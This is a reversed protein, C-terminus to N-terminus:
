RSAARGNAKRITLANSMGSLAMVGGGVGLRVFQEDGGVFLTLALMLGCAFAFNASGVMWWELRSFAPGNARLRYRPQDTMSRADCPTRWVIGGAVRVAAMVPREHSAPSPRGTDDLSRHTASCQNHAARMSTAQSVADDRQDTSQRQTSM